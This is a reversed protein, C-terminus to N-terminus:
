DRDDDDNLYKNLVQENTELVEDVWEELFEGEEPAYEQETSPLADVAYREGGPVHRWLARRKDTEAQYRARNRELLKHWDAVAERRAVRVDRRRHERLALDEAEYKARYQKWNRRVQREEDESLFWKSPRPRWAFEYLNEAFIPSTLKRGYFTWLQYGHEIRSASANVWTSVFRGSPDWCIDTCAFHEDVGMLEHEPVNWWELVGGMTGLGALLVHGLGSPSWCIRNCQKRELTFLARVADKQVEYFTVMPRTSGSMLGMAGNLSSNPGVGSLPTGAGSTAAAAAMNPPLQQQHLIAFRDSKPEWAFALVKDRESFELIEVPVDKENVRFIEFNTFRGKRSRTFREVRCALYKGQPHWILEINAVSYLAKQRLERRSPMELLLVRAPSQGEEPAWVALLNAAAPSWEFGLAAPVVVARNDILEVQDPLMGYVQVCDEGLRAMMTEDASFQVLPWPFRKIDAPPMGREREAELRKWETSQMSALMPNAADARAREELVENWLKEFLRPPLRLPAEFSKIKRGTGTEWIILPEPSNPANFTVLYRENASFHILRPQPHEFRLIKQFESSGWLAIGQRHFTALYLGQPSWSVDSETWNVREHAIEPPLLPDCWYVATDAGACIVYQDRGRPDALHSLLNPRTEMHQSTAESLESLLEAPPEFTTEPSLQRLREVESLLSVQFRHAKDLQFGDTQKQAREAEEMSGYEILGYGGTPPIELLRIAGLPSFIKQIVAVLKAHKSEPIVPLNEVVITSAFADQAASEAQAHKSDTRGGKQTESGVASSRTM